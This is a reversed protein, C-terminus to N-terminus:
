RVSLAPLLFIMRWVRKYENGWNQSLIFFKTVLLLNEAYAMTTNIVMYVHCFLPLKLWKKGESELTICVGLSFGLAIMIHLFIIM